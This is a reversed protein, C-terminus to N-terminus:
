RAITAVSNAKTISREAPAQYESYREPNKIIAELDLGKRTAWEKLSDPRYGPHLQCRRFVSPDIREDVTEVWGPTAKSGGRAGAEKRIRDSMVWRVYHKGGSILKWFGHLFEGFSDRPLMQMDEEDDCQILSRFGLGCGRAKEQIWALPRQPMLDNEYGGGVNCHAGSFWRQEVEPADTHPAESEDPHDPIFRTWLMAWYPKRFEDLALAQYSHQVIKSLHTNHFRLTRRSIGPINGLPVGLSGVTDWVGVMKVLNREYYAQRLLTTEEFDFDTQGKRELYKLKYIPRVDDGKRYREYLQYFSMPAAPKLLGCRAIVGALSRATFAGRSFGFIYIEDGPNYQEMLWRYASRVNESLGYGFLGGTIRDFWKTGVGPDYYKRQPLGDEGQDALMLNLRWVNTNSEPKNWTGDLFVALRKKVGQIPQQEHKL